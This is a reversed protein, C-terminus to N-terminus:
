QRLDQDNCGDLSPTQLAKQLKFPYILTQGPHTPAQLIWLTRTSRHPQPSCCCWRQSSPKKESHVRTQQWALKEWLPCQLSASLQSLSYSHM